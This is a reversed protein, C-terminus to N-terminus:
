HWWTMDKHGDDHV